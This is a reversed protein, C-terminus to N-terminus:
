DGCHGVYRMNRSKVARILNPPSNKDAKFSLSDTTILHSSSVTITGAGCCCGSWSKITNGSYVFSCCMTNIKCCFARTLVRPIPHRMAFYVSLVIANSNNEKLISMNITNFLSRKEKNDASKIIFTFYM